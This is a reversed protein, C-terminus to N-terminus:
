VDSSKDFCHHDCRYCFPSDIDYSHGIFICIIRGILGLAKYWWKQSVDMEISRAYDEYYRKQCERCTREHQLISDETFPKDSSSTCKGCMSKIM